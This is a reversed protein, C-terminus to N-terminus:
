ARYKATLQKKLMTYVQGRLRDPKKQAHARPPTFTLQGAKFLVANDLFV